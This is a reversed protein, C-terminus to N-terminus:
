NKFNTKDIGYAAIKASLTRRSLGCLKACRGVHGHSQDLAKSIYQKEIDTSVERLLDPLPRQLDVELASKSFSATFLEAPL